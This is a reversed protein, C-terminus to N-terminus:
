QDVVHIVPVIVSVATKVHIGQPSKIEKGAQMNMDPNMMSPKGALQVASDVTFTGNVVIEEGPQLGSKVVYSDGTATGLNVERLEFGVGSELSKKVYVVSREGTWLVASRPIVM